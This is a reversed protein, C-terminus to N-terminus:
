NAAEVHQSKIMKQYLARTDEDLWRGYFKAFIDTIPTAELIADVDRIVSKGIPKKSCAIGYFTLEQEGAIPIVVYDKEAGVKEFQYKAEIPYSFTYDFRNKLLLEAFWDSSNVAAKARAGSKQMLENVARSYFRDKVIGLRLAQLSFLKPLSVAGSADIASAIKSQKRKLTILSNPLLPFRQKSFSIFTAREQTKFTGASCVGDRNRIARLTRPFNVEMHHHEYGPLREILFAMMQDAFGEGASAGKTVFVPPFDQYFWHVSPLSDSGASLHSSDDARSPLDLLLFGVLVGLLRV